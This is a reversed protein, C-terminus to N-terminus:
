VFPVPIRQTEPGAVMEDWLLNSLEMTLEGVKGTLFYWISFDNSLMENMLLM